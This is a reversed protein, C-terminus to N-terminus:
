APLITHVAFETRPIGTFGLPGLVEREFREFAERTEWVDIVRFGDPTPGAIHSLQGEPWAGGPHILAFAQEYEPAGAGPMEIIQAIPMGVLGGVARGTECREKARPPLVSGGMMRREEIDPRESPADRVRNPTKV